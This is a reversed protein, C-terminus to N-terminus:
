RERQVCLACVARWTVLREKTAVIKALLRKTDGTSARKTMSQSLLKTAGRFFSTILFIVVNNPFKEWWTLLESIISVKADIVILDV